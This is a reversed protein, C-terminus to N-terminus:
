DTLLITDGFCTVIWVFVCLVCGIHEPLRVVLGRSARQGQCVSENVELTLGTVSLRVCLVRRPLSPFRLVCIVLALCQSDSVCFLPLM